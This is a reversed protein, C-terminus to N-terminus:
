VNMLYDQYAIYKTKNFETIFNNKIRCAHRVECIHFIKLNM